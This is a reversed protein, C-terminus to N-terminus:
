HFFIFSEMWIFNKLYAFCVWSSLFDTSYNIQTLQSPLSMQDHSFKRPFYFHKINQDSYIYIGWNFMCIGWWSVSNLFYISICCRPSIIRMVTYWVFYSKDPIYLLSMWILKLIFVVLNKFPCSVQTSVKCFLYYSYGITVLFIEVINDTILSQLNFGFYFIAM